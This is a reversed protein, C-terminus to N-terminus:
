ERELTALPIAKYIVTVGGCLSEIVPSMYIIITKEMADGLWGLSWLHTTIHM